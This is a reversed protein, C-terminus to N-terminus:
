KGKDEKANIADPTWHPSSDHRMVQNILIEIGSLLEAIFKEKQKLLANLREQEKEMKLLQKQYVKENEELSRTRRRLDNIIQEHEELLRLATDTLTAAADARRQGRAGLAGYIGVALAVIAPIAIAWFPSTENLLDM